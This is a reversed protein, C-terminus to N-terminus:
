GVVRTTLGKVHYVAPCSKIQQSQSHFIHRFHNGPYLFTSRIKGVSRKPNSDDALSIKEARDWDRFNVGIAGLYSGEIPLGGLIIHLAPCRAGPFPVPVLVRPTGFRRPSGAHYATFGPDCVNNFTKEHAVIHVLMGRGYM